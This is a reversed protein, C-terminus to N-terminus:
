NILKNIIQYHSHSLFQFFIVLLNLDCLVCILDSTVESLEVIANSQMVDFTNPSPAATTTTTATTPTSSMARRRAPPALALPPPIEDTWSNPSMRRNSASSSASTTTTTNTNTNTDSTLAESVARALAEMSIRKTRDRDRVDELTIVSSELRDCINLLKSHMASVEPNLANEAPILSPSSGPSNTSSLIEQGLLSSSPTRPVFVTDSTEQENSTINLAQDLRSVSDRLDTHIARLSPVVKLCEEVHMGNIRARHQAFSLATGQEIRELM